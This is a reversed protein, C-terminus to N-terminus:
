KSVPNIVSGCGNRFRNMESRSIKYYLLKNPERTLSVAFKLPLNNKYYCSVDIVNKTLLLDYQPESPHCSNIGRLEYGQAMMLVQESKDLTASANEGDKFITLHGGPCAVAASTNFLAFLLTGMLALSSLTLNKM